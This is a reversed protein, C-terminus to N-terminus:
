GFLDLIRNLLAVIQDLPSGGDLLHAIACLLNGLLNGPGGQATIDLVVQDLHVVLGLLDLDLPGLELHLIPCAVAPAQGSSGTTLSAPLSVFENSVPLTSGNPLRLTGNLLGNAILQGSQNTFSVIDLEGQFTGGGAITGAIPVNQLPSPRAAQATSGMGATLAPALAIFALLVVPVISLWIRQKKM